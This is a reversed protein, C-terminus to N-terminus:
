TSTSLREVFPVNMLLTRTRSANRFGPDITDTPWDCSRNLARSSSTAITGDRLSRHAPNIPPLARM